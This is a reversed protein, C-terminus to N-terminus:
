LRLLIPQAPQFVNHASLIHNAPIANILSINVRPTCDM